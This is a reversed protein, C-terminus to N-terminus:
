PRELLHHLANVLTRDHENLLESWRRQLRLNVAEPAKGAPVDFEVVDGGYLELDRGQISFPLRDGSETQVLGRGVGPLFSRVCGTMGRERWAIM